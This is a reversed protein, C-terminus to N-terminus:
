IALILGNVARTIATYLWQKHTAKNLVEEYIVVNDYQGGQTLHCTLAYGYEFKEGDYNPFFGERRSAANAKFYRYDIKIEEFYKLDMFYPQFDMNFSRSTFGELSIPNYVTGVLGNVLSIDDVTIKRNNRRCILKDNHVPLAGRRKFIEERIYRNLDDRTSNRGCIVADAKKLMEDTLEDKPIVIVSDSYVGYPIPKGERALKSLLVIPSTESTRKIETLRANPNRLFAPKGIVPPLQGLDGLAIIRIGFSELDTKISQPVMSAEDVVILKISGGICPKLRFEMKTVPRGMQVIPEGMDDLKPVDVVDYIATHITSSNLGKRKLVMSAQGTYAVNIVDVDPDLGLREILAAIVTSKGTGAYGVLEYIQEKNDMYWRYCDDIAFQQGQTFVM